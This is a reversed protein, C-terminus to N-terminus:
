DGPRMVYLRKGTFAFVRGCGCEHFGPSRFRHAVRCVCAVNALDRRRVRGYDEPVPKLHARLALMAAAPFVRSAPIPEPYLAPPEPEAPKLTKAVDRLLANTAQLETALTM